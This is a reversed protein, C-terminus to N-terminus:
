FPLDDPSSSYEDEQTEKKVPAKNLSELKWADLTNFYRVVGDKEWARGSINFKVKIEDGVNYNSLLSCKDQKLEFQITQPYESDQTQLVFERKQFKDSVKQTEKKVKLTGTIEYQM